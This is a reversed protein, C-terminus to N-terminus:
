KLGFNKVAQEYVTWALVAMLTRRLTRPACGRFYGRMGEERGILRIVSALSDGGSLQLRTKVVDAPQTLLSALVGAGIGCLFRNMDDNIFSSPMRNAAIRKLKDYLMLYIGSFPVDRLLTPLLGRTLGRVGERSQIARLADGVSRYGYTGSEYRVKVVTVPIMICGAVTRAFAGVFLSQSASPAGQFLNTKMTHMCSFYIGVGPVTKVLSPGVGRWLGPMKECAVVGRTVDLMSRKSGGVQQIKTKILDLPQFLLTSCTGSLSGALFSKVMPSPSMSLTLQHPRNQQFTTTM